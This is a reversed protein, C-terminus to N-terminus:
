YPRNRVFFINTKLSVNTTKACCESEQNSALDCHSTVKDFINGKVLIRVPGHDGLQKEDLLHTINELRTTETKHAKRHKRTWSLDTHIERLDTKSPRLTWEKGVVLSFPKTKMSEKTWKQINQIGSFYMYCIQIQEFGITRDKNFAYLSEM